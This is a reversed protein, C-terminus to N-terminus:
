SAPAARSMVHKVPEFLHTPIIMGSASCFADACFPTPRKFADKVTHTDLKVVRDIERYSALTWASTAPDAAYEWNFVVDDATFPKGDHWLVNKKLNWIVSTGARAVGGNDVGPWQAALVPGATGDPASGA